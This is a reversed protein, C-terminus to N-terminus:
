PTFVQSLWHLSYSSFAFHLSNSAFLRNYFSGPSAYLFCKKNLSPLLKFLNNFDNDPLDNLFVEFDHSNNMDLDEIKDLIHSVVYLTNSGSSCGLDVIRFLRPFGGGVGHMLKLAEHLIPLAATIATRQVVLFIFM